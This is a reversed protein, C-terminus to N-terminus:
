VPKWHEPAPRQEVQAVPKVGQLPPQMGTPLQQMSVSQLLAVSATQLPTQALLPFHVKGVLAGQPARLHVSVVWLPPVPVQEAVPTQLMAVATAHTLGCVQVPAPTHAQGVEDPNLTQGPVPAHMGLPPQQLLVSHTDVAGPASAAQLPVQWAFLVQENGVLEHPEVVQEPVPTISGPLQEIPTQVNRLGWLQLPLKMQEPVAQLVLQAVAESQANPKTQEDVPVQMVLHTLSEAQVLLWYQTSAM